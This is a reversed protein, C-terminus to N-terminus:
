LMSHRAIQDMANVSFKNIINAMNAVRV